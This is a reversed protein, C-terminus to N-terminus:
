DDEESDDDFELSFDQDVKANAYLFGAFLAVALCLVSAICFVALYGNDANGALLLLWMFLAGIAGVMLGVIVFRRYATSAILGGLGGGWVAFAIAVMVGQTLLSDKSGPLPLVLGENRQGIASVDHAAVGGGILLGLALGTFMIWNHPAQCEPTLFHLLKETAWKSIPDVDGQAPPQIMKDAIQSGAVPINRAITMAALGTAVREGSVGPLSLAGGIIAGLLAIVIPATAQWITFFMILGPAAGIAACLLATLTISTTSRPARKAKRKSQIKLVGHTVLQKEGCVGCATTFSAPATGSPLDPYIESMLQSPPALLEDFDCGECRCITWDPREKWYQKSIMVGCLTSSSIIFSIRDGQKVSKLHEVPDQVRGVFLNEEPMSEFEVLRVEPKAKSPHPGGDHLLVEYQDKPYLPVQRRVIPHSLWPRLPDAIKSPTM